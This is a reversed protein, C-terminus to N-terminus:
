TTLYETVVIHFSVRFIGSPSLLVTRRIVVTFVSSRVVALVNASWPFNELCSHAAELRASLVQPLLVERFPFTVGYANRLASLLVLASTALVLFALFETFYPLRRSLGIIIIMRNRVSSRIRYHFEPAFLLSSRNDIVRFVFFFFYFNFRYLYTIFTTTVDNILWSFQFIQERRCM